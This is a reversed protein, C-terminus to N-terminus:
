TSLYGHGVLVRNLGNGDHLDGGGVRVVFGRLMMVRLLLLLRDVFLWPLRCRVLFAVSAEEVQWRTFLERSLM